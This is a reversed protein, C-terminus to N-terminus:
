GRQFSFTSNNHEGEGLENIGYITYTYRHHFLEQDEYKYENGNISVNQLLMKNVDDYILLIYYSIQVRSDVNPPDWSITITTCNDLSSSINLVSTLFGTEYLLFYVCVVYCTIYLKGFPFSMNDIDDFQGAPNSLTIEVIYARLNVPSSINVIILQNNVLSLTM